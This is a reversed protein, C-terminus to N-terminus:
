KHVVTMAVYSGNRQLDGGENGVIMSWIYFELVFQTLIVGFRPCM